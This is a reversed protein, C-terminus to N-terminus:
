VEWRNNKVDQVSVKEGPQYQLENKKSTRDHYMKQMDREKKLVESVNNVIKPLLM